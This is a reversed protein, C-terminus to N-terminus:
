FAQSKFDYFCVCTDPILVCSLFNVISSTGIDFISYGIDLIWYGIDLLLFLSLLLFLLLWRFVNFMFSTVM